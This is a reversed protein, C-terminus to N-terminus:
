FKHLFFMGEPYAYRKQGADNGNIKKFLEAIARNEQLFRKADDESWGEVIEVTPFNSHSTVSM